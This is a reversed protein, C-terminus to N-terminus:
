NNVQKMECTSGSLYVITDRNNSLNERVCKIIDDVSMTSFGPQSQLDFVDPPVDCFDIFLLLLLCYVFLLCFVKM